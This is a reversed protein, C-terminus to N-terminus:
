VGATSAMAIDVDIPEVEAVSRTTRWLYAAVATAGASLMVLLSNVSILGSTTMSATGSVSAGARQAAANYPTAGAFKTAVGASFRPAVGAAPMTSAQATTQAGLANAAVLSVASTQANVSALMYVVVGMATGAAIGCKVADTRASTPASSASTGYM